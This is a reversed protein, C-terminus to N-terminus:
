AIFVINKFHSFGYWENIEPNIYVGYGKVHLEDRRQAVDYGNSIFYDCLNARCAEAIMKDTPQTYSM